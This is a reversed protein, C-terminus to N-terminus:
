IDFAELNPLGGAVVASLTYIIINRGREYVRCYLSGLLITFLSRYVFSGALYILILYIFFNQYITVKVLFLPRSFGTIFIKFVNHREIKM